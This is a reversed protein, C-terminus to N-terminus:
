SISAHRPNVTFVGFLSCSSNWLPRHQNYPTTGRCLYGVASAPKPHPLPFERFDGVSGHAWQLRVLGCILHTSRSNTGRGDGLLFQSALSCDRRWLAETWGGARRRPLSCGSGSVFAMEKM